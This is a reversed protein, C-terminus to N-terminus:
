EKPRPTLCQWLKRKLTQIGLGTKASIMHFPLGPPLHRVLAERAGESLLDAKTLVLSAGKHRPRIGHAEVEAQLMAYTAAIDEQDVPIMYLLGACREIHRLFRIGLGKGQSAGRLLGPIDALVFTNEQYAVVGLQPTLTTFPYSAIKPRAASLVTLLTSKGANPPGVMGVDAMLKLELRAEFHLAKQGEQAFQPAQRTPSKFHANGRGGRGGPAIPKKEGVHTVEALIKGTAGEKAITGLPVPLEVDKGAAGHMQNAGGPQGNPALVHKRFRLHLLTNLQDNGVLVIAGGRGGDGGDPGGTPNFRTRRFHLAGAGGHGPRLFLRIADVFQSSAM